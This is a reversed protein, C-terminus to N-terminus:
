ETGGKHTALLEEWAEECHMGIFEMVGSLNRFDEILAEIRAQCKAETKEVHGAITKQTLELNGLLFHEFGSQWKEVKDNIEKYEADKISATLDRQAKVIGKLTELRYHWSGDNEEAAERQHWRESIDDDELLDSQDPQPEFTRRADWGLQIMQQDHKSIERAPKANPNYLWETRKDMSMEKLFKLANKQWRPDKLKKAYESAM